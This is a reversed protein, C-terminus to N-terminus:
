ARLKKLQAEISSQYYRKRNGLRFDPVILLENELRLLTNESIRLYKMVEKATLVTEM